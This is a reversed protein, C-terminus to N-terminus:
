HSPARVVARCRSARSTCVSICPATALRESPKNAAVVSRSPADNKSEETKPADSKAEAKPADNKSEAAASDDDDDDDDVVEITMKSKPATSSFGSIAQAITPKNSFTLKVRSTAYKERLQTYRAFTTADLRLIAEVEAYTTTAWEFVAAMLAHRNSYNIYHTDASPNGNYHASNLRGAHYAMLRQGEKGACKDLLSELKDMSSVSAKKLDHIANTKRVGYSKCTPDVAFLDTNDISSHNVSAM